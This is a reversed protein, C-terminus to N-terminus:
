GTNKRKYHQKGHVWKYQAKGQKFPRKLPQMRYVIGATHQIYDADSAYIDSVLALKGVTQLQLGWRQNLWFNMGFGLNINPNLATERVSRYTLGLGGSFYPDFWKVASPMFRNFSYKMHFDGSVFIGSVGTTNNIIKSTTYTNYAVMGELSWGKRVYKDLSLRTPFPLYNWSDQYDFLNGFANGDDDIVSWSLGFMFRYPNKKRNISSPQALSFNVAFLLVITVIRKM